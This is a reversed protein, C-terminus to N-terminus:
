VSVKKHVRPEFAKKHAKAALRKNNAMNVYIQSTDVSFHGLVEKIHFANAGSEAMQTACTHRLQHVAITAAGLIGAWAAAEKICAQLVGPWIPKKPNYKSPFVYPSGECRPQRGCEDRYRVLHGMLLQTAPVTREKSNKGMFTLTSDGWDVGNWRLSAQEAVRLGCHYGLLVVLSCRMEHWNGERLSGVLAERDVMALPRPNFRQFRMNFLKFIDTPNERTKLRGTRALYKWFCELSTMIRDVSRPSLPERYNGKLTVGPSLLSAIFVSLDTAVLDQPDPIPAQSARARAELFHRLLRLDYHFAFFTNKNSITALFEGYPPIGRLDLIYVDPKLM